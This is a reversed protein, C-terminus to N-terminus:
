KKVIVLRNVARTCGTYLYRRHTEADFPFNEEFLLINNAQDGQYKWVTAFYSFNMEFPVIGTWKKSRKLQMQQKPNLASVGTMLCNYDIPVERYIEGDETEIDATMLNFYGEHIYRPLYIRSVEYDLIRGISGNILPEENTSVFDWHNKLSIISDGIEPRVPSYGLLERKTQNGLRRTENTACLIQDAWLFHGSVLEKKTIIKVQADRGQYTSLPRQTRIHTAIDIIENGKEQRMVETLVIHPDDLVGNDGDASPPPLQHNDGMAFVPIGHSILDQWIQPAVMSVEDVCILKYEPIEEKPVFHYKGYKDQRAQYLLKHLTMANPNGRKKIVQAAKGTPAAYCVDEEPDLGLAEIIYKLITSKGSGAPGAMVTYPVGANYRRIAIEVAEKQKATLEM